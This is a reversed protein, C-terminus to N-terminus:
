VVYRSNYDVNVNPYNYKLVQLTEQESQRLGLQHYSKALLVLGGVVSPAGQYHAILDNARNASAVYAKRNYYYEGVQLEHAALVNRLYIMYQHASPTYRSHPFRMTLENFDTYSKRIQSLDRTALDVIFLREFIGMNQYYNSIGRMYYAYDVNASTPYVRIYRDAAAVALTYDEKMYYAYILYLQASELDPGYPYQIELAEFRKVAESYSREQLAVKGKMFIQHPSEGKYADASTTNASSCATLFGAIFLMGCLLRLKKRMNLVM